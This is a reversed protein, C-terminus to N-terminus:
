PRLRGMRRSLTPEARMSPTHSCRGGTSWTGFTCNAPLVTLEQGSCSTLRTPPPYFRGCSHGVPTAAALILFLQSTLLQLRRVRVNRRGVFISLPILISLLVIFIAQPRELDVWDLYDAM